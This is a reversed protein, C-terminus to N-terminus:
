FNCAIMAAEAIDACTFDPASKWKDSNEPKENGSFVLITRLGAARGTDVDIISDGIFCSKSLDTELGEGGFSDIAAKILGPRPKRCLCHEEKRHTCYYVRDVFAGERALEQRMKETIGNLDENTYLGKGVGQQNSIVVVKFGCSNLTKIGQAANPLMHFETVSCVYLHHGPYANIVGDRDVFAIKIRQKAAM